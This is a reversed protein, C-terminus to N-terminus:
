TAPWKASLRWAANRQRDAQAYSGEEADIESCSPAPVRAAAISDVFFWLKIPTEIRREPPVSIKITDAIWQAIAHIVLEYRASALVVHDREAHVAPLGLLEEYFKAVRQLDKAFVFAGAPAANSM